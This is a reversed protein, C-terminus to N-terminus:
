CVNDGKQDYCLADYQEATSERQFTILGTMNKACNEHHKHRLIAISGNGIWGNRHPGLLM